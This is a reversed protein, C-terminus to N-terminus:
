DLVGVSLHSLPSTRLRKCTYVATSLSVPEFLTPILTDGSMAGKYGYECMFLFM